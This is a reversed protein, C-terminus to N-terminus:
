LWATGCRTCRIPINELPLQEKRTDDQEWPQQKSVTEGHLGPQGWICIWGAWISPHCPYGVVRAIEPNTIGKWGTFYWIANCLSGRGTRLCTVPKTELACMLFIVIADSDKTLNSVVSCSCSQRELLCCASDELNLWLLPNLLLFLVSKGRTFDNSNMSSM